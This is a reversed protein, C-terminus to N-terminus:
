KNAFLPNVRHSIEEKSFGLNSLYEIYKEKTMPPKLIANGEKDTGMVIRDRGCNRIFEEETEEEDEDYTSSFTDSM